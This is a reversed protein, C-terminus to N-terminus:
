KREVKIFEGYSEEITKLQILTLEMYDNIKPSGSRNIIEIHDDEENITVNETGDLANMLGFAISSVSACILDRGYEAFEAHGTIDLYTYDDDNIGYIVKIM